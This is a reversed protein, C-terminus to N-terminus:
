FCSILGRPSTRKLLHSIQAVALQARFTKPRIKVLVEELVCVPCLVVFFLAFSQDVANMRVPDFLTRVQFNAYSRTLM